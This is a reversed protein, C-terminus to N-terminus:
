NKLKVRRKSQRKELALLSSTFRPAAQFSLLTINKM